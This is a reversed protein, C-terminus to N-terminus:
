ALKNHVLNLSFTHRNILEMWCSGVRGRTDQTKIRLPRAVQTYRLAEEIASGGM